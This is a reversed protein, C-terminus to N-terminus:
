EEDRVVSAALAVVPPFIIALVEKVAGTDAGAVLLGLASCTVVALLLLVVM